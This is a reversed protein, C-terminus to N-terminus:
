FQIDGHRNREQGERGARRERTRRERTRMFLGNEKEGIEKRRRKGKKGREIVLNNARLQPGDPRKKNLTELVNLKRHLTRYGGRSAPFRKGTRTNWHKCKWSPEATFGTVISAGM